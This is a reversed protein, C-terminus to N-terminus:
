NEERKSSYCCYRGKDTVSDPSWKNVFSPCITYTPKGTQEVESKLM